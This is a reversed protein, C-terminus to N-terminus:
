GRQILNIDRNIDTDLRYSINSKNHAKWTIKNDQNAKKNEMLFIGEM